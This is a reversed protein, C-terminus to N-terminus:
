KKRKREKIKQYIKQQEPTLLDFLKPKVPNQSSETVVNDEGDKQPNVSESIEAPQFELESEDAPLAIAQSLQSDQSRLEVGSALQQVQSVDLSRAWGPLAQSEVGLEQMKQSQHGVRLIQAKFAEWLAKADQPKRILNRVRIQAAANSEAANNDYMGRTEDICFTVFEAYPVGLSQEWEKKQSAGLEKGQKFDEWYLSPLGRKMDRIIKKALGEPSYANETRPLAEVLAAYFLSLEQPSRWPALNVAARDSHLKRERYHVVRRPKPKEAKPTETKASTSTQTQSSSSLQAKPKNATQQNKTGVAINEEPSDEGWEIEIIQPVIPPDLNKKTSFIVEYDKNTYTGCKASVSNETNQPFPDLEKPEQLDTTAFEEEQEKETKTLQAIRERKFKKFGAYNISYYLTNDAFLFCQWNKKKAVQRHKKALKKKTLVGLAILKNTCRYVTDASFGVFFKKALDEASGYIWKRGDIYVGTNPCNMILYNFQQFITAMKRDYYYLKVLSNSVCISDFKKAALEPIVLVKQKIISQFDLDIKESSNVTARPKTIINMINKQLQEQANVRWSKKKTLNKTLITLSLIFTSELILFKFDDYM